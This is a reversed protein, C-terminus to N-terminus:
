DGGCVADEYYCGRNERYMSGMDSDVGATIALGAADKRDKAVRHHILENVADYDSVVFGGFGFRDRLIETLYYRSGTIVQGNLVNFSSMATLAGADVAAAYPKM